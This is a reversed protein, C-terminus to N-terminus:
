KYLTPEVNRIYDWQARQLNMNAIFAFFNREEESPAERAMQLANGFDVTRAVQYAQKLRALNLQKDEIDQKMGKVFLALEDYYQLFEPGYFGEDKAQDALNDLMESLAAKLKVKEIDDM